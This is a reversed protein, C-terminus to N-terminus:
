SELICIKISLISQGQLPFRHFSAPGNIGGNGSHIQPFLELFDRLNFVPRNIGDMELIYRLLPSKFKHLKHVQVMSSNYNYDLFM